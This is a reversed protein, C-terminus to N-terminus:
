TSRGCTPCRGAVDLKGSLVQEVTLNAARAIVLILSASARRKGGAVSCLTNESVATAASLCGWTGYARQLNRLVARVHTREAETLSPRRKCTRPHQGADNPHVLRLM